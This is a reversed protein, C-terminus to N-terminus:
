RPLKQILNHFLYLNRSLHGLIYKRIFFFIYTKLDKYPECFLNNIYYYYNLEIFQFVKNFFIIKCISVRM